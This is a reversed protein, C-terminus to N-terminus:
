DALANILKKVSFYKSGSLRSDDKLVTGELTFQGFTDSILALEKFPDNSFRFIDVVVPENTEVTNLGEFRVWNDTLPQTLGDVLYQGAYDYSITLTYSDSVPSGPVFADYAEDVGDNLMISGADPNLKYDWPTVGDTYETLTTTNQKVVVNSVKIHALRTVLGPFCKLSEPSGSAVSGSGILTAQGRSVLALNKANWNEITMSLNVKTETQLRKDTARQGDQSGKHEVITTAVSIKLDPVNGVPRLGLAEGTVPDKLGVMAVGQGSFYYNAADFTSM